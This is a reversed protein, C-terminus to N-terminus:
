KKALVVFCFSEDSAAMVTSSVTSTMPPSIFARTHVADSCLQLALGPAKAYTWLAMDFQSGERSGGQHIHNDSYYQLATFLWYITFAVPGHWAQNHHAPTTLAETWCALYFNYDVKILHAKKVFM